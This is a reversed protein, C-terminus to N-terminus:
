ASARAEQSQASQGGAAEATERARKGEVEANLEKAERFAKGLLVEISAHNFIQANVALNLANRYAQMFEELTKEPDIDLVSGPYLEGNELVSHVNLQLTIPKINLKSLTSAVALAIPEGKKAVVKNEVVAITTGQVRVNLGAGKLDSLAPGPPLGTDGAPVVIDAPALQGPKASVKGKSKKVRAYLEFANLKSFLVASSGTSVEKLKPLGAEEFARQIVRIKSVRVVADKSLNWRLRGFLTAPFNDINAVAITPYEKCLHKLEVLGKQKWTKTHRRM